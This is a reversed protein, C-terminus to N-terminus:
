KGFGVIRDSKEEEKYYKNDDNINYIESLSMPEKISNIQSDTFKLTKALKKSDDISLKDFKYDIMTRGKRKLAKDIKTDDCNYTIVVSAQIMDSLIGDSLNLITSIYENDQRERSVLIKEADELIIVCKKKKVLISFIDPDSIFKEIFSTPIFIFEKDIVSTLYKIFSSKGTGPEGHFMYLGKNNTKLKQIIKDYIPKFNEGYNLELDIKPIKVDLPEFDYEEYRNKMLVSVCHGKVDEIKFKELFKFKQNFEKLLFKYNPYYLTVNIKTNNSDIKKRNEKQEESTEAVITNTDPMMYDYDDDGYYAYKENRDNLALVMIYEEDFFYFNPQKKKDINNLINKVNLQKDLSSVSMTFGSHYVFTYNKMCHELLTLEFSESFSMSCCETKYLQEYFRKANFNNQHPDSAHLDLNKVELTKM